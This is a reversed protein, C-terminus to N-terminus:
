GRRFTVGAGTSRIIRSLASNITKYVTSSGSSSFYETELPGVKERKVGNTSAATLSGASVLESLAAECAANVIATPVGSLTYGDQDFADYRPWDLGQDQSSRIGPWKSAYLGDLAQSGRILAAEKLADSGTQIETFTAAVGTSAVAISYTGDRCGATDATFTVYGDVGSAVWGAYTASRIEGATHTTNGTTVAVTFAVSNLTIVVNGNGTAGTAITLKQVETATAPCAWSHNGRASFYADAAAVSAYSNAASLGTGDEVTM